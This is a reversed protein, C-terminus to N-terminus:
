LIKPVIQKFVLIIMKSVNYNQAQFDRLGELPHHLISVYM